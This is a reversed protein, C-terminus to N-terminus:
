PITSGVTIPPTPSTGSRPGFGRRSSTRGGRAGRRLISRGDIPNTWKYNDLNNAGDECAGPAAALIQLDEEALEAGRVLAPRGDVDVEVKFSEARGDEFIAEVMVGEGPEPLQLGLGRFRVVDGSQLTPVIAALEEETSMSYDTAEGCGFAGVITTLLARRM